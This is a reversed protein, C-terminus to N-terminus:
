QTETCPNSAFSVFAVGSKEEIFSRFAELQREFLYPDIHLKDDAM